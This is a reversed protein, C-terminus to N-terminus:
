IIFPVKIDTKVEFGNSSRITSDGIDFYSIIQNEGINLNEEACLNQITKESKDDIFASLSNQRDFTISKSFKICFAERIHDEDYYDLDFDDEDEVNLSCDIM